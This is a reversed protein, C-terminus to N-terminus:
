AENTWAYYAPQVKLDLDNETNPLHFYEGASNYVEPKEGYETKFCLQGEYIFFGPPCEELTVLWGDPRIELQKM